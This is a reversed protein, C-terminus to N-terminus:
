IKLFGLKQSFNSHRCLMCKNYVGSPDVHVHPLFDVTKNSIVYVVSKKYCNTKWSTWLTKKQNWNFIFSSAVIVQAAKVDGPGPIM